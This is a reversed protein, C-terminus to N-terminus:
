HALLRAILTRLDAVTSIVMTEEPPLEIGFRQEVVMSLEFLRLSYYGLDEVLRTEPLLSAGRAPAMARVIEEVQERIVAEDVAPRAQDTPQDTSM